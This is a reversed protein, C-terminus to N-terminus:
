PAPEVIAPTHICVQLSASELWLELDDKVSTLPQDYDAISTEEYMEIDAITWESTLMGRVVDRSSLVIGNYPLTM